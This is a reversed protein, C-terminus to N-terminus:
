AVGPDINDVGNAYKCFTVSDRMDDRRPSTQSLSYGEPSIM